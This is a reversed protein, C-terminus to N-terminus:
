VVAPLSEVDSATTAGSESTAMIAQQAIYHRAMDFLHPVVEVQNPFCAHLQESTLPTGMPPLPVFNRLAPYPSSEDASPTTRSM